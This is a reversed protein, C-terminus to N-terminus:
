KIEILEVDFVLTSNAPIVGPIEREGYGLNSPIILTAKEGVKMLAIGEDWGKIVQGAGLSFEFPQNRDYSSDFKKGNLLKGTYHVRVIDGAKAQEGTGEQTVNYVLGSATTQAKKMHNEKLYKNIDKQEQSLNKQNTCSALFAVIALTLIFSLKKM